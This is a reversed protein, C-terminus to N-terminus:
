RGAISIEREHGGGRNDGRRSTAPQGIEPDLLMVSICTFKSQCCLPELRLVSVHPILLLLFLLLLSSFVQIDPSVLLLLSGLFSFLFSAQLLGCCCIPGLSPAATVDVIAFAVPAGCVAVDVSCWCSHQCFYYMPFLMCCQLCDAYSPIPMSGSAAPMLIGTDM